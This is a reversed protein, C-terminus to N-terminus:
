NNIIIESEKEIKLAGGLEVSLEGEWQVDGCVKINGNDLFLTGGDEVIIQSQSHIFLTAGNEITLTNGNNVKIHTTMYTNQTITTNISIDTWINDFECIPTCNYENDYPGVFPDSDDCDREDPAWAPCSAPKDGIGWWYYGDGDLDQCLVELSNDLLNEIPLGLSQIRLFEPANSSAQKTIMNVYGNIGFTTFYSQKFIWYTEGILPSGSPVIIFSGWGYNLHLTDSEEVTGYGILTMAHGGPNYLSISLPGHNILSDKIIDYDNIQSTSFPYYSTIKIKANPNNCINNCPPTGPGGDDVHIQPDWPFCSENVIGSDEAFKLVMNEFGGNYCNGASPYCSLVHQESLDYDLHQNFYLNTVAEIAGLPGFTFCGKSCPCWAQQDKISTIWGNGIEHFYSPWHHIDPDGDWYPSTQENASHRNRWDFHNTLNGKSLNSNGQYSYYSFIGGIYYELGEINYKDGFLTKKQYFPLQSIPNVAAVWLLKKEQLNNNISDVKNKLVNNIHEMRWTPINPNYLTDIFITDIKINVDNIEIKIHSAHVAELYYTEDGVDDFFVTDSNYLLPYAELILYETSDVSVLIVRVLSTDNNLLVYGNLRIGYITEAPVFIHITQCTDYTNNIHITDTQCLLDHYLFLIVALLLIKIKM